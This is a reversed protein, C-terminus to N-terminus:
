VILFTVCRSPEQDSAVSFYSFSEDMQHQSWSRHLDQKLNFFSSFFVLSQVAMFASTSNVLAFM